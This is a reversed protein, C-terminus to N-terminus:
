AARLIPTYDISKQAMYKGIKKIVIHPKHQYVEKIDPVILSRQPLTMIDDVSQSYLKFHKSFFDKMMEKAVMDSPDKPEIGGEQLSRQRQTFMHSAHSTNKATVILNKFAQHALLYGKYYEEMADMDPMAPEAIFDHFANHFQRPMRGILPPLERFRSPIVNGEHFEPNYKAATHYFHHDSPAIKQDDRSTPWDYDSWFFEDAVFDVAEDIDLFGRDDTPLVFKSIFPKALGTSIDMWKDPRKWAELPPLHRSRVNKSSLLESM